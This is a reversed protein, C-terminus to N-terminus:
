IFGQLTSQVYKSAFRSKDQREVRVRGDTVCLLMRCEDSWYIRGVKLLGLYFGVSM